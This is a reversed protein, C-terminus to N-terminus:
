LSLVAKWVSEDVEVGEAMSRRREDLTREGPYRVRDGQAASQHLDDVIRDVVTAAEGAAGHLSASIAIFVQSQRTEDAVGGTIEHTALGGSLLAAIMDLVIALGSGKWFGTPLLRGSAEIATPDRTLRGEADYGGDVPLQASRMRHVALAGYSFQSMAMDLVVHGSARPIAMVLPNNGITPASAGWPPLNRLTNTWCIGVFGADAAQWGYNGARMWHNTNALAVCGIGHERAVAIARAMCAHANLPGPGQRGDWRELAGFSAVREPEGNVNVIGRRIAGVFAVFRNLGHSPVGDRSADAFLAACLDARADAMGTAVLVGGLIDRVESFPIRM